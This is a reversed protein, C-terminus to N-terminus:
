SVYAYCIYGYTCTLQISALNTYTHMRLINANNYNYNYNHIYNYDYNYNSLFM